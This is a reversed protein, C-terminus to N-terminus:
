TKGRIEHYAKIGHLSRAFLVSNKISQQVTHAVLADALDIPLEKQPLCCVFSVDGDFSTHSPTISRAIALHARKALYHAASKELKFNTFIATLVTNEALGVKPAFWRKQKQTAALFTGKSDIAGALIRGDEDLVDGVANVVSVVGVRAGKFEIEALGLGAKMAHELGAWKGVTAGTGAGVNGMQRNNFQANLYAQKADHTTPFAQANGLNKDFIVAAPVIPVVGYNTTFGKGEAALQEMVGHACNLGFASGGTLVLAHIQQIKKDPQLLALERTGPAAGFAYASSINGEPPVIVTCGTAAKTDTFHGIKLLDFM